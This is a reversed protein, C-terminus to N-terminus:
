LTAFMRVSIMIGEALTYLGTLECIVGNQGKCQPGEELLNVSLKCLVNTTTESAYYYLSL